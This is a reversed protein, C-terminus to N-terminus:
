TKGIKKLDEVQQSNIDKQHSDLNRVEKSTEYGFIFKMVYEQM